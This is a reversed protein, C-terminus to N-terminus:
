RRIARIAYRFLTLGADNWEIEVDQAPDDAEPSIALVDAPWDLELEARSRRIAALNWHATVWWLQTGRECTLGVLRGDQELAVLSVVAVCRVDRRSRREQRARLALKNRAM